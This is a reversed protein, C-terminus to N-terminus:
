YVVKVRVNNVEQGKTNFSFVEFTGTEGDDVGNVVIDGSFKGNVVSLEGLAIQQSSTSLRYHINSANTKGTVSVGTSVEQNNTPTYLTINGSDSTVGGTNKVGKGNNDTVGSGATEHNGQIKNGEKLAEDQDKKNSNLSPDNDSENIKDESEPSNESSQSNTFPWMDNTYAYAVYGFVALLAIVLLTIITKKTNIRKKPKNIQM